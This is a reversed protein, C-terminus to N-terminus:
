IGFWTIFCLVATISSFVIVIKNENWGCMEFHHHLPSMKFIRKGTLRFSAVQLIVSLAEAVYVLGVTLLILPNEMVVAISSVLGGLFLSGTDGMFVRAPNLNFILFGLVGGLGCASLLAVNKYGLIYLSVTFFLLVVSTVTGALGDVGDTLNVSNIGGILVLVILPYYAYSLELSLKTFPVKISTDNFGAVVCVIAFVVSAAVLCAMKQKANFGMNRKYYVKIFDDAFGIIGCIVSFVLVAIGRGSIGMIVSVLVTSLIFGIGGMTPTGQKAQHWKPGDQLIQQGFKLRRLFPILMPMVAACIGFSIIISFITKLM